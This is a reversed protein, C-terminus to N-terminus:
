RPWYFWAVFGLGALLVTTALRRWSRGRLQAYFSAAAAVTLLAFLGLSTLLTPLEQELRPYDSRLLGFVITVGALSFSVAGASGLVFGLVIVSPRM